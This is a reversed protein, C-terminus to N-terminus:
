VCPNVSEGRSADVTGRVARWGVKTRDDIVVQVKDNFFVVEQEPPYGTTNMLHMFELRFFIVDILVEDGAYEKNDM